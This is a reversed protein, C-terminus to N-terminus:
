LGEISSAIARAAAVPDAANRIPRGVVLLDAGARLAEEPTAVRAQDDMSAGRPRVGPVMLRTSPPLGARLSACEHPSCVLGGIGAAVALTGLREVSAAPGSAFGIRAWEEADLSTLVTVALLTTASGEVARACGELARPGAAAHVTLYDVDLALASRVASAMTAGIDHLKLDLFCRAGRRKVIRVSEPGEATFLELGVKFVGVDAGLRDIWAEADRLTPVDLPFVLRDTAREPRFRM